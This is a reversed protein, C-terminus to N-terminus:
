SQKILAELHAMAAAQSSHVSLKDRRGTIKAVMQGVLRLLGSEVYLAMHQLNPNIFYSNKAGELFGDPLGVNLKSADLLVYMPRDNLGLSEDATMDEVTLEDVLAMVIINDYKTQILTHGM